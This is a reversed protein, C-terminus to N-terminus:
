GGAELGTDRISDQINSQFEDNLNTNIYNRDSNNVENYPTGLGPIYYKRYVNKETDKDTRNYADYM